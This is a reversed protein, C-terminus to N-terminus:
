VVQVNLSALSYNLATTKWYEYGQPTDSWIFCCALACEINHCEHERTKLQQRDAQAIAESKIPEPLKQLFEIATLSTEM